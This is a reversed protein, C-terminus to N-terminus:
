AYDPPPTFNHKDIRDFCHPLLEESSIAKSKIRNALETASLFALESM